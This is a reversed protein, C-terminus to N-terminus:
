RSYSEDQSSLMYAIVLGALNLLASFVDSDPPPILLCEGWLILLKLFIHWLQLSYAQLLQFKDWLFGMVVVM